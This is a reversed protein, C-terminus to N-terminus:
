RKKLMVTSLRDQQEQDSYYQVDTNYMRGVCSDPSAVTHPDFKSRWRWGGFEKTLIERLIKSTRKLRLLQKYKQANNKVGGGKSLFM